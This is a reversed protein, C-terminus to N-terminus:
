FAFGAAAPRLSGQGQPLLLFYLCQQIFLLETSGNHDHRLVFCADITQLDGKAFRTFRLVTQRTM